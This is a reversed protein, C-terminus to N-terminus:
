ARKWINDRVKCMTSTRKSWEEEAIARNLGECQALENIFKDKDVYGNEDQVKSWTSVFAHQRNKHGDLDTQIDKGSEVDVRFTKYAEVYMERVAEVDDVTVFERQHLKAHATAFRTLSELQRTGVPTMKKGKSAQRLRNYIKIIYDEAEQTVQPELTRVYNIFSMMKDPTMYVTREGRQKFSTMIHRAKITDSEEDVIDTLLWIVDMRSLIPVPLDVNEKIPLGFDYTGFVPNAAALTSAQAPLTKVVNAKAISCTGSEMVEHMASRDDKSMKDFEDVIVTGNNCLPYVGAMAMWIGLKEHKVMSITLGAASSGKGNTYISKQAVKKAFKLLETKALSPDGVLFVNIVGRKECTTGGALMMIISKKIDSYGYIHPAYSSALKDMFDPSEADKKYKQKEEDTPMFIKVDDVDVLDIVDIILPNENSGNEVVTKLVGTILKTQGTFVEGVYKGKIKAVFSVPTNNEAEEAPEQVIITQIYDTKITSGNIIMRSKCHMSIPIRREEDCEVWEDHGCAPCKLTCSQIYSKREDTAMIFAKFAVPKREHEAPSLDHLKIHVDELIKIQVDKFTVSVMIGQYKKQLVQMLSFWVLERFGDRYKDFYKKMTPDSLPVFFTDKPKLNDILISYKEELIKALENAEDLIINM